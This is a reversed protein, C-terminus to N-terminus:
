FPLTAGLQMGAVRPARARSAEAVPVLWLQLRTADDPAPLDANELVDYIAYGVYGLTAGTAAGILSIAEVEVSCGEAETEQCTSNAILYGLGGFAAGGVLTVGLMSGFSILAREPGSYYLHVAAPLMFMLSGAAIAFNRRTYYDDDDTNTLEFLGAGALGALAPALGYGGGLPLRYSESPGAGM